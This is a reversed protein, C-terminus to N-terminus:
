EGEYPGYKIEEDYERFTVFELPEKATWTTNKISIKTGPLVKSKVHVKLGSSKLRVLKEELDEKKEKFARLKSLLAFRDRSMHMIREKQEATLEHGSEQRRKEATQLSKSQMDTREEAERIEQEIRDMEERLTPSGGVEIITLTQTSTGTQNCRVSKTARTIGGMIYGKKGALVIKGSSSVKSYMISEDVLIDGDAYVTAKDIFKAVVNGKCMVLAKDQGVIGARVNLNGGCEITAMEICGGVEIDGMAKVSFGSIINGRIHVSGTFDINGTSFDVDGPIEIIPIVNVKNGKLKPQGDSAAVLLNPDEKSPKTNLGIPFPVDKGQRPVIDNGYVTKGPIGPKAPIKKALPDGKKCKQFLNLERFDVEGEDTITPRPRDTDTDFYYDISGDEGDAPQEGVAIVINENYVEDKIAKKIVDEKVGFDIGELALYEMVDDFTVPKGGFPPSINISAETSDKSVNIQFAGDRKEGVPVFDRHRFSELMSEIKEIDLYFKGAGAEKIAEMVDKIQAKKGRGMPPEVKILIEDGSDNLKADVKGDMPEPQAPAILVPEIKQHNFASVISDKDLQDLNKDVVKKLVKEVFIQKDEFAQKDIILYVGQPTFDLKYLESGQEDSM